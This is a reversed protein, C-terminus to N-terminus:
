GRQSRCVRRTIALGRSAVCGARHACLRPLLRCYLVFSMPLFGISTKQKIKNGCDKIHVATTRRTKRGRIELSYTSQVTGIAITHRSKIRIFIIIKLAVKVVIKPVIKPVRFSKEFFVSVRSAYYVSCKGRTTYVM